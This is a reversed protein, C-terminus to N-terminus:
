YYTGKVDFAFENIDFRTVVIAGPSGIGITPYWYDNLIIRPSLIKKGNRTFQVLVIEEDNIRTRCMYCGVVDGTTYPEGREIAQNSYHYIGGDDGHYGIGLTPDDSWGPFYGSRTNSNAQTLGIAIVGEDGRNVVKVEFYFMSSEKDIPRTTRVLNEKTDVGTFELQSQNKITIQKGKDDM